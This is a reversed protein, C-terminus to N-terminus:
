QGGHSDDGPWCGPDAAVGHHCGLHSVLHVGRPHNGTRSLDPLPLLARRLAGHRAAGAAAFEAASGRTFRRVAWAAVIAVYGLLGLVGVPLVGFLRAYPSSQVTNCDGVPGCIAAVNQTEVFTLYGAVGLGIVCLLPILKETWAPLGPLSRGLGALVAAVLAYALSLALLIAIATALGFGSAVTAAPLASTAVARFNSFQVSAPAPAPDACPTAAACVSGAAALLYTALNPLRPFDAGGAALLNEVVRPLIDLQAGHKARLPPLVQEVVVQCHPCGDATFLVARVVPEAGAAPLTCLSLLLVFLVLVVMRRM